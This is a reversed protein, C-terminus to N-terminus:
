LVIKQFIVAFCAWTLGSYGGGHILYFLPGTTGKVYVNFIDGEEIEISKKEDFFETWELASYSAKEIDQPSVM